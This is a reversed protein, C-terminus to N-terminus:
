KAGGKPLPFRSIIRGGIEIHMVRTTHLVASPKFVRVINQGEDTTALKVYGGPAARFLGMCIEEPTEVVVFDGDAVRAGDWTILSLGEECEYSCCGKADPAEAPRYRDVTKASGAQATAGIATVTVLTLAAGQLFDRRALRKGAAGEPQLKKDTM